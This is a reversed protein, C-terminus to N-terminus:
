LFACVTAETWKPRELLIGCLLFTSDPFGTKLAGASGTDPECVAVEGQTRVQPFPCPTARQGRILAKTGDVFAAVRIVEWVGRRRISDCQLNPKLM